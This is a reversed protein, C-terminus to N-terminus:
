GTRLPAIQHVELFAELSAVVAEQNKIGFSSLHLINTHGSSQMKHCMRIWALGTGPLWNVPIAKQLPTSM